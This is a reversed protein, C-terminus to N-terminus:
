FLGLLLAETAPCYIEVCQCLDEHLLSLLRPSLLHCLQYSGGLRLSMFRHDWSGFRKAILWIMPEWTVERRPHTGTPICKGKIIYFYCQHSFGKNKNTTIKKLTKYYPVYPTHIDSKKKLTYIM